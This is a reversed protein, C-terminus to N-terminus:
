FTLTLGQLLNGLSCFHWFRSYNVIEPPLPKSLSVTCTIHQHHVVVSMLKVETCCVVCTKVVRRRCVPITLSNRIVVVRWRSFFTPRCRRCTLSTTNVVIRRCCDYRVLSASCQDSTLSGRLPRCMKATEVVVDLFLNVKEWKRRCTAM